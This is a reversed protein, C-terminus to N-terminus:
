AQSGSSPLVLKESYVGAAVEVRDGPGAVDLAAQISAYASPVALTAAAANHVAGPFVVGLFVAGVFVTALLAM